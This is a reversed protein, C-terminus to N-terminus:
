ESRRGNGSGARLLAGVFAFLFPLLLLLSLPNLQIGGSFGGGFLRSFAFFGVIILLMGAELAILGVGIKILLLAVQHRTM